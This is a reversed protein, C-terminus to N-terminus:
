ASCLTYYSLIQIKNKTKKLQGALIVIEKTRRCFSPNASTLTAALSEIEFFVHAQILQNNMNVYIVEEKLSVPFKKISFV